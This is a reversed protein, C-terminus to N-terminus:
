YGIITSNKDRLLVKYKHCLKTIGKKVLLAAVTFPSVGTIISSILDVIATVLVIGDSKKILNKLKEDNCLKEKIVELNFLSM